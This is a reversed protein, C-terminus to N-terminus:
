SAHRARDRIQLLKNERKVAAEPAIMEPTWDFGLDHTVTVRTVGALAGVRDTVERSFYGVQLCTPSTLRLRVTVEGGDVVVHEVLGMDILGMPSHVAVSCPDAVSNLAADIETRIGSELDFVTM